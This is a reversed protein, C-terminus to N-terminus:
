RVETIEGDPGFVVVQCPIVKGCDQLATKVAYEIGGCCPVVMRAVTVSKISNNRLIATLKETYDGEDLKPCGIITIKERMFENHFNGYAYACCDASVLLDANEFYPANAPVLKIQIPWQRLQSAVACSVADELVTTNERQISKVHTGPSGDCKEEENRIIKRMM